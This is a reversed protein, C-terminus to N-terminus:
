KLLRKAPKSVSSVSLIPVESVRACVISSKPKGKRDCRVRLTGIRGPGVVFGSSETTTSRQWFVRTGEPYHEACHKSFDQELRRLEQQLRDVVSDLM